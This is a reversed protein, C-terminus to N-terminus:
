PRHHYGDLHSSLECRHRRETARCFRACSDVWRASRARATICDTGPDLHEWTRWEWVIQGNTTMEVLYDAYIEGNHETGSLGGQIKLILDRSLPALCILLLNGNSLRIGDHHHDPHRVEWLVRGNWDAELVVGGKWRKRRIYRTSDEFTKGNYFYTGRKRSIGM